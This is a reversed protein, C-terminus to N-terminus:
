GKFLLHCIEIVRGNFLPMGLRRFLLCVIREDRWTEWHWHHWHHCHHSLHGAILSLFDIMWSVPSHSAPTSCAALAVDPSGEHLYPAGERDMIM